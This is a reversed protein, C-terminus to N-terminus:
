NLLFISSNLILAYSSWALYPTMLYFSIKDRILYEKMLFIIFLLIIILNVLALGILHFGFFVISWTSNFFLHIFYIKLMRTDFSNKWIKWIAITMLLYLTSWIPAFVWSPPNFSPLIIESYWPEKFTATVYSGIMPAIFTILLLIVLSLYKNKM